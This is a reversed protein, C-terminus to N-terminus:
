ARISTRWFTSWRWSGYWRGTTCCEANSLFILLDEFRGGFFIVDGLCDTTLEMDYTSSLVSWQPTYVQSHQSFVNKLYFWLSVICPPTFFLLVFTDWRRYADQLWVFVFCGIPGGQCEGGERQFSLFRSLSSSILLSLLQFSPLATPLRREIGLLVGVRTLFSEKKNYIHTYKSKYIRLLAGLWTLWNDNVQIYWEGREYM